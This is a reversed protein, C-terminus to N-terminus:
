KLHSGTSDAEQTLPDVSTRACGSGTQSDSWPTERQVRCGEGGRHEPGTWSDSGRPEQLPPRVALWQFWGWDSGPSNKTWQTWSIDLWSIPTDPHSKKATNTRNWIEVRVGSTDRVGLSFTKRSSSFQRSSEEIGMEMRVSDWTDRSDTSPLRNSTFSIRSRSPYSLTHKHWNLSSKYIERWHWRQNWSSGKADMFREM